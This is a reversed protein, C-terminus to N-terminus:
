IAPSNPVLNREYGARLPLIGFSPAYGKGFRDVDERGVRDCAGCIEQRHDCGGAKCIGFTITRSFGEAEMAAHLTEYDEYGASHLEVRTTFAAM